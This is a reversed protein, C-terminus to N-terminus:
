SEWAHHSPFKTHVHAFRADIPEDAADVVVDDAVVDALDSSGANEAVIVTV